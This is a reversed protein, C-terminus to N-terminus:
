QKTAHQAQAQAEVTNILDRLGLLVHFPVIIAARFNAKDGTRAQEAFTLRANNDITALFTRNAFVAPVEFCAEHLEQMTTEVSQQEIAPM